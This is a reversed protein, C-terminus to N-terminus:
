SKPAKLPRREKVLRAGVAVPIGLRRAIRRTSQYTGKPRRTKSRTM